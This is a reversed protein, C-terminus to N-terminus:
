VSETAADKPHQAILQKTVKRENIFSFIPITGALLVVVTRPWLPWNVRRALDFALVIYVMYGFGHIPSIMASLEPIGGIYRLPVAVFMLVFLLVSVIWAIIQFRRLAGALEPKIEM